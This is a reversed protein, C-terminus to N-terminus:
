AHAGQNRGQGDGNGEKRDRNPAAPRLRRKSGAHRGPPPRSACSDLAPKGVLTAPRVPKHPFRSFVRPLAGGAVLGVAVSSPAGLVSPPMSICLNSTCFALGGALFRSLRGDRASGDFDWAGEWGRPLSVAVLGSHRRHRSRSVLPAGLRCCALRLFRLLGALTQLLTRPVREGRSFVCLVEGRHRAEM